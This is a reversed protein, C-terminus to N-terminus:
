YERRSLTANLKTPATIINEQMPHVMYTPFGLDCPSLGVSFLVLLLTNDIVGCWM